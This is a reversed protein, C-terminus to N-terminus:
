CSPTTPLAKRPDTQESGMRGVKNFYSISKGMLIFEIINHNKILDLFLLPLRM